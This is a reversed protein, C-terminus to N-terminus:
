AGAAIFVEEFVKGAEARITPRDARIAIATAKGATIL